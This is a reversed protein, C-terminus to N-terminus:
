VMCSVFYHASWVYAVFHWKRDNLAAFTIVGWVTHCLIMAMCLAASIMFFSQQEGDFGVSGPGVSDALVNVLSFAGSM